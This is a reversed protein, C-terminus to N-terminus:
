RSAFFVVCVFDFVVFICVQTACFPRGWLAPQQGLLLMISLLLNSLAVFVILTSANHRFQSVHVALKAPSMRDTIFRLTVPCCM